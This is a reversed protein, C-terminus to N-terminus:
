APGAKLPSPIVLNGGALEVVAGTAPFTIWVNNAQTPPLDIRFATAYQGEQDLWSVPGWLFAGDLGFPLSDIPVKPTSPIPEPQSLPM